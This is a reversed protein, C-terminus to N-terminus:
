SRHPHGRHWINTPSLVSQYTIFARILGKFMNLPNEGTDGMGLLPHFTPNNDFTTAAATGSGCATSDADFAWARSTGNYSFAIWHWANVSITCTSIGIVIANANHVGIMASANDSRGQLFLKVDRM